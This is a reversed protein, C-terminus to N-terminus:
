KKLYARGADTITYEDLAQTLLGQVVMRPLSHDVRYAADTEGIFRRDELIQEETGTGGLDIVAHLIKHHNM